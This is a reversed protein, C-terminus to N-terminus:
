RSSTEAQEANEDDELLQFEFNRYWVESNHDTLMLRGKRNRGFGKVDNFKSEAHRREWDPSGVIAEVILEGNLWHKISDGRVEICATNFQGVPQLRKAESPEYLDYLSGAWNRLWRNSVLRDDCVQYECGLMRGDFHAM